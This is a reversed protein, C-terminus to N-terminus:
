DLWCTTKPTITMNAPSKSFCSMNSSCIRHSAEKVTIHLVQLHLPTHTHIASVLVADKPQSTPQKLLWVEKCKFMKLNADLSNHHTKLSRREEKLHDQVLPGVLDGLVLLDLPHFLYMDSGILPFCKPFEALAVVLLCLDPGLM